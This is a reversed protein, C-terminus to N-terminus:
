PRHRTPESIHILSLPLDKINLARDTSIADDVSVTVSGAASHLVIDDAGIDAWVGPEEKFDYEGDGDSYTVTAPNAGGYDGGIVGAAAVNIGGDATLQVLGEGSVMFFDGDSEYITGVVSSSGGSLRVGAANTLPAGGLSLETSIDLEGATIRPELDAEIVELATVLKAVVDAMTDALTPLELNLDSGPM